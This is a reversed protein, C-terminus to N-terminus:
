AARAASCPFPRIAIQGGISPSYCQDRCANGGNPRGYFLLHLLSVDVPDVAPVTECILSLM